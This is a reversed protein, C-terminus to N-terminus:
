LSHKSQRNRAYGTSTEPRETKLSTSGNFRCHDRTSGCGGVALNEASLFNPTLRHSCCCCGFTFDFNRVFDTATFTLMENQIAEFSASRCRETRVFIFTVSQMHRLHYRHPSADVSFASASYTSEASRQEYKTTTHMRDCM